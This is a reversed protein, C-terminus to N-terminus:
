PRDQTRHEQAHSGLRAPDAPKGLPRAVELTQPGLPGRHIGRTRGRPPDQALVPEHVGLVVRPRRRVGSTSKSSSSPDIWRGFLLTLENLSVGVDRRVELENLRETPRRQAGQMRPGLTTSYV